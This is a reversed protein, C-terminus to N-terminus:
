EHESVEDRLLWDYLKEASSFNIENGESDKVMGPKYNEGFELDFIFYEIDTGYYKDEELGFIKELLKISTDVADPRDPYGCGYKDALADEDHNFDIVKKIGEITDLFDQKTLVCDKM